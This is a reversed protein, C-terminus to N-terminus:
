SFEILFANLYAVKNDNQPPAGLKGQIELVASNLLNTADAVGIVVVDGSGTNEFSNTAMVTNHTRNVVRLYYTINPGAAYANAKFRVMTTKKSYVITTLVKYSTNKITAPTMTISTSFNFAPIYNTVTSRLSTVEPDSIERSTLITISSPKPYAAIVPIGSNILDDLVEAWNVDSPDAFFDSAPYTYTYAM